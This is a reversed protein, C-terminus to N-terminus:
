WSARNLGPRARIYADNPEQISTHTMSKNGRVGRVHVGDVGDVLVLPVGSVSALMGSFAAM